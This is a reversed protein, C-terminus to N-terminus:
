QTTDTSGILSEAIAIDGLHNGSRLESSGTGEEGHDSNQAHRHRRSEVNEHGLHVSANWQCGVNGDFQSREVRNPHKEKKGVRKAKDNNIEHQVLWRFRGFRRGRDVFHVGLAPLEPLRQKRQINQDRDHRHKSQVNTKLQQFSTQRRCRIVGQSKAWGSNRGDKSEIRDENKTSNNHSNDQRRFTLLQFRPCVIIRIHKCACARQKSFIIYPLRMEGWGREDIVGPTVSSFKSM